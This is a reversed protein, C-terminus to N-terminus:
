KRVCPEVVLCKRHSHTYQLLVTGYTLLGERQEIAVPTVPSREFSLSAVVLLDCSQQVTHSSHQKCDDADSPVLQVAFQKVNRIEVLNIISHILIEYKV